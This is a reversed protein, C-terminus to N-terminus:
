SITGTGSVVVGAAGGATCSSTTVGVSPDLTVVAMGTIHEVIAEAIIDIFWGEPSSPDAKKADAKSKILAALTPADLAM